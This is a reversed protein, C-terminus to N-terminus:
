IGHLAPQLSSAHGESSRCPLHGGRQSNEIDLPEAAPCRWDRSTPQLAARDRSIVRTIRICTGPIKKDRTSDTETIPLRSLSPTDARAM